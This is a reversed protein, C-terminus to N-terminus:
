SKFKRYYHLVKVVYRRTERYPPVQYGHRKVAYEGANYAALTLTLNNKFTGMLNRLHRTGAHINSAPHELETIGYGYAQGTAPMVQMLGRAGRPSIAAPNFASEVQIVAHVLAPDVGYQHAIKNITTSFNDRGGDASSYSPQPRRKPSVAPLHVGGQSPGSAKSAAIRSWSASDMSTSLKTSFRDASSDKFHRPDLRHTMNLSVFNPLSLSPAANFQPTQNNIPQAWCFFALAAVLAAAPRTTKPLRSRLEVVRKLSHRPQQEVKLYPNLIIDNYM